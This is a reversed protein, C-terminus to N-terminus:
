PSQLRQISFTNMQQQLSPPFSTRQLCQHSPSIRPQQKVKSKNSVVSEKELKRLVEEKAQVEAIQENLYIFEKEQELKIKQLENEQKKLLNMKRAEIEAKRVIQKM